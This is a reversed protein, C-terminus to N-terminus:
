IVNNQLPMIAVELMQPRINSTAMIPSKNAPKTLAIFKQQIARGCKAAISVLPEHLPKM